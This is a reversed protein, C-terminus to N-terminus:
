LGDQSQQYRPLRQQQSVHAPTQQGELGGLASGVLHGQQQAVQNEVGGQHLGQGAGGGAARQETLEERGREAGGQRRPGPCSRQRPPLTAGWRREALQASSGRVM